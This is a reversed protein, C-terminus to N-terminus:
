KILEQTVSVKNYFQTRLKSTYSTLQMRQYKVVCITIFKIDRSGLHGRRLTNREGFDETELEVMLFMGKLVNAQVLCAYLV